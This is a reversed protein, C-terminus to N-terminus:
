RPLDGYSAREWYTVVNQAQFSITDEACVRPAEVHGPPWGPTVYPWPSRICWGFPAPHATAVTELPKSNGVDDGHARPCVRPGRPCERPGRPCVRPARPCERLGRPCVRPPMPVCVPVVPVM